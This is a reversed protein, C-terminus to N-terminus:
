ASVSSINRTHLTSSCPSVIRTQIWVDHNYPAAGGLDSPLAGRAAFQQLKSVSLKQVEFGFEVRKKSSSRLTLQRKAKEFLQEDRKLVVVLAIGGNSAGVTQQIFGYITKLQKWYQERNDIVLLFGGNRVEGSCLRIFTTFLLKM